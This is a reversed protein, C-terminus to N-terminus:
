TSYMHLVHPTTLMSGFVTCLHLKFHWVPVYDAHRYVVTFVEDYFGGLINWKSFCVFKVQFLQLHSFSSDWYKCKDNLQWAKLLSERCDVNEVMLAKLLIETRPQLKAWTKIMTSPPSLLFSTYSKLAPIVKGELLFRAFWKFREVSKPYELDVAPLMWANRGFTSTMHCHVTGTEEEYTPAPKELPKSFTCLQPLIVPLWEPEIATVGVLGVLCIM